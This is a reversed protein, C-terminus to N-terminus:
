RPLVPQLNQLDCTCVEVSGNGRPISYEQLLILPAIPWGKALIGPGLVPPIGSLKKSVKIEVM